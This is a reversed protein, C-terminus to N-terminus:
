DCFQMQQKSCVDGHVADEDCDRQVLIHFRRAQQQMGVSRLLLHRRPKAAVCVRTCTGAAAAATGAAANTQAANAKATNAARVAVYREFVGADCPIGGSRRGCYLLAREGELVQDNTHTMPTHLRVDAYLPLPLKSCAGVVLRCSHPASGGQGGEGGGRLPDSCGM